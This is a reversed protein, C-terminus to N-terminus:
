VPDEGPRHRVATCASYARVLAKGPRVRALESRVEHHQQNLAMALQEYLRRCPDLQSTAVPGAGQLADLIQQATQAHLAADDLLGERLCRLQERLTDGLDRLLAPADADQRAIDDRAPTM